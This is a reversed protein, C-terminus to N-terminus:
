GNTQHSPHVDRVVGNTRLKDECNPCVRVGPIDPPAFVRAYQDTVFGGCNSCEVM